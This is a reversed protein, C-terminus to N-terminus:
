AFGHVLGEVFPQLLGIQWISASPTLIKPTIGRFFARRLLVQNGNTNDLLTRIPDDIPGTRLADLDVIVLDAKAGPALRGLDDRGLARAGGLTAARFFDASAGASQDRAVLKALNSGEDMVRIMDPPLTDTGLAVNVRAARCRDFSELVRGHRISTLPCHIVSTGTAALRSLEDPRDDNVERSGKIFIVHPISV